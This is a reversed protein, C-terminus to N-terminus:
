QVPLATRGAAGYRAITGLKSNPFISAYYRAAEEARTDFWLFPKIKSM